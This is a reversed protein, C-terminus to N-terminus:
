MLQIPGQVEAIRLTVVFVDEGDVEAKDQKEVVFVKDIKGTEIQVRAGIKYELGQGPSMTITVMKKGGKDLCVLKTVLDEM